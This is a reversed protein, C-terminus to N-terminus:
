KKALKMEIYGTCTDEECRLVAVQDGNPQFTIFKQAIKTSNCDPCCIGLCGQCRTEKIFKRMPLETIGCQYCRSTAACGKCVYGEELTREHYLGYCGICRNKFVLNEQKEIYNSVVISCQSCLCLQKSAEKKRFLPTKCGTCVCMKFVETAMISASSYTSLTTDKQQSFSFKVLQQDHSYILSGQVTWLM